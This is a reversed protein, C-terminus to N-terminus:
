EARLWLSFRDDESGAPDTADRIRLWHWVGTVPIVFYFSGEAEEDALTGYAASWLVASWVGSPLSLRFAPALPDVADRGEAM